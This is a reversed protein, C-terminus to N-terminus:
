ADGLRGDLSADVLDGGAEGDGELDGVSSVVPVPHDNQKTWISRHRGEPMAAPRPMHRLVCHSLNSEGAVVGAVLQRRTRSGGTVPCELRLHSLAVGNSHNRKKM